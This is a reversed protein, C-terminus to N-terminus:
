LLFSCVMFSRHTFGTIVLFEKIIFSLVNVIDIVVTVKFFPNFSDCVLDAM